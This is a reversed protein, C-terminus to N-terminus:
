VFMTSMRIESRSNAWCCGEISFRSEDGQKDCRGRRGHWRGSGQGGLLWGGLRRGWWGKM